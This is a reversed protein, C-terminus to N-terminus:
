SKTWKVEGYIGSNRANRSADNKSSRIVFNLFFLGASRGSTDKFM